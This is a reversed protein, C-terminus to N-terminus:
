VLNVIPVKYIMLPAVSKSQKESCNDENKREVLFGGSFILYFTEKDFIIKKKKKKQINEITVQYIAVCDLDHMKNILNIIEHYVNLSNPFHIWKEHDNCLQQNTKDLFLDILDHWTNANGKLM